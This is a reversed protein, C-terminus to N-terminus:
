NSQQSDETQDLFFLSFDNLVARAIDPRVGIRLSKVHSPLLEAVTRERSSVNGKLIDEIVNWVDFEPYNGLERVKDLYANLLRDRNNRANSLAYEASKFQEQYRPASEDRKKASQLVKELKPIKRIAVGLEAGQRMAERATTRASEAKNQENQVKINSHNYGQYGRSNVVPASQQEVNARREPERATERRVKEPVYPALGYVPRTKHDRSKAMVQSDPSESAKVPEEEQKAPEKVPERNGSEPKVKDPADSTPKQVPTTEQKKTNEAILPPSAPTIKAFKAEQKEAERKQINASTTRSWNIKGIVFIGAYLSLVILVSAIVRASKLCVAAFGYMMGILGGMVVWAFVPHLFEIFFVREIAIIGKIVMLYLFYIILVIIAFIGAPGASKNEAETTM